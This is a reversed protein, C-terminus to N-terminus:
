VGAEKLLELVEEKTREPLDNWYSIKGECFGRANLVNYVAVEANVVKNYGQKKYAALIAGSMCFSTARPDSPNMVINGAADRAYWGQHWDCKKLLEYAKM